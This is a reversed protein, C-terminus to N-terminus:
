FYENPTTSNSTSNLWISGLHQPPNQEKTVENWIVTLGGPRRTRFNYPMIREIVRPVLRDVAILDAFVAAILPAAILIWGDIVIM